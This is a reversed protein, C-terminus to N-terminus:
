RRSPADVGWYREPPVQFDECLQDWVARPPLGDALAEDVTRGAAVGRGSLVHSGRLHGAMVSGFEGTLLEEFQSERVTVAECPLPGRTSLVGQALEPHPVM